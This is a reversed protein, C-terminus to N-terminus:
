GSAVNVSRSDYPLTSPYNSVPLFTGGNVVFPPNNARESCNLRCNGYL